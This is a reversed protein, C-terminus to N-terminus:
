IFYIALLVVGAIAGYQVLRSGWIYFIRWGLSLIRAAIRILEGLAVGCALGLLLPGLQKDAFFAALDLSQAAAPEIGVLTGAAAVLLAIPWPSIRALHLSV